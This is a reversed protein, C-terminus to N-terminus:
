NLLLICTNISITHSLNIHLILSTDKGRLMSHHYPVPVEAICYIWANLIFNMLIKHLPSPQM